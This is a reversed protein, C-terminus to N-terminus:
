TISSLLEERDQLIMKFIENQNFFHNIHKVGALGYMKIDPLAIIRQMTKALAEDDGRPVLWGTEDPIIADVCGPINTVIAPTGMAQTEIISTPFGEHYSPLILCDIAAYYKEVERQYGCFRMQENNYATEFLSDDISERCTYDGVFIINCNQNAKCIESGAKLLENIGKDRQFRGVYGFVFTEGSINLENRIEARWKERCDFRFRNLDVGCSSGRGIVKAKQSNYLKENIGIKLNSDSDPRVHTSCKCILREVTEFIFRRKGSLQVYGLGWECYLRIPIGALFAAISAYCGANSTAYQVLDFKEKKFFKFLKITSLFGSISIGRRIEVPYYRIEKPVRRAFEEDYSSIFTIDWDANEINYQASKLCFLDLTSALTSVYCIKHSM